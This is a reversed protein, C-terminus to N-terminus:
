FRGRDGNGKYWRLNSELDPVSSKGHEVLTVVILVLGGLAWSKSLADIFMIRLWSCHGLTLFKFNHLEYIQWYVTTCGHSLHPVPNRLLHAAHGHKLDYIQTDSIAILIFWYMVCDLFTCVKCLTSWWCCFRGTTGTILTPADVIHLLFKWFGVSTFM